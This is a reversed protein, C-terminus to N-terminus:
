QEQWDLYHKISIATVLTVSRGLWLGQRRDYLIERGGKVKRGRQSEVSGELNQVV